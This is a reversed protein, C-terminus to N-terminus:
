TYNVLAADCLVFLAHEIILKGVYKKPKSKTKAYISSQATCKKKLHVIQSNSKTLV